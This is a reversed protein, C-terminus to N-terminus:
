GRTRAGGDREYWADGSGYGRDPPATQFGNGLTTLHRAFCELITETIRIGPSVRLLPVVASQRIISTPTNVQRLNVRKCRSPRAIGRSALRFSDRGGVPWGRAQCRDAHRHWSVRWITAVQTLHIDGNISNGVGASQWDAAPHWGAWMRSINQVIETMM